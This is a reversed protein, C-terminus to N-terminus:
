ARGTHLDIILRALRAVSTGARVASDVLLTRALDMDIDGAEALVVAAATILAEERLKAPAQEALRRTTFSLDANTVAGAAWGDFVTALLAHKGDFTTDTRGYLNVTGIVKGDELIPFTLTSRVGTAATAQAFIQWRPEDFLDQSTTSLGQGDLSDVCPGSTLYQVADLAAADDDTAVLTFTVGHEHSALSFGALHPAVIQAVAAYRRLQKLLAGEARITDVEALAELTEPIPRM